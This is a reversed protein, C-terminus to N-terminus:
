KCRWDNSYAMWILQSAALHLQEPHTELYKMLVRALQEDTVDKPMCYIKKATDSMKRVMEEQENSHIFGLCYGANFDGKTGEALFAKCANLLFHGTGMDASHVPVVFVVLLFLCVTILFKMVDEM